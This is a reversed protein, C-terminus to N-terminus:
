RNAKVYCEDSCYLYKRNHLPGGCELCTFENPMGVVLFPWLWWLREWWSVYDVTTDDVVIEPCM